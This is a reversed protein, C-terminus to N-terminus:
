EPLESISDDYAAMMQDVAERSLTIFAPVDIESLRKHWIHQAKSVHGGKPRKLEVLMAVGGPLLLLRDPIGNEGSLKICYGGRLHVQKVLHNEVSAELPAIQPKRKRPM